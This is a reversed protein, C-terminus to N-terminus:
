FRAWLSYNQGVMANPAFTMEVMPFRKIWAPVLILGAISLEFRSWGGSAANRVYIRQPQIPLSALDTTHVIRPILSGGGLNGLLLVANPGHGGQCLVRQTDSSTEDKCVLVWSM